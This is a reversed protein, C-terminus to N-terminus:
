NGLFNTLHTKDSACLVLVFAAGTPIQDLTDWYWDGTIMTSYIQHSESDALRVPEFNLHVQFPLPALLFQICKFMVRHNLIGFIHSHDQIGKADGLGFHLESHLKGLTDATQFSEIKFNDLGCSFHQDIWTKTQQSFTQAQQFNNTSWFPHWPNWQESCKRHKIYLATEKGYAKEGANDVGVVQRYM